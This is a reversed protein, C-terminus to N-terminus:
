ALRVIRTELPKTDVVQDRIQIAKFVGDFAIYTMVGLMILSHLRGVIQKLISIKMWM